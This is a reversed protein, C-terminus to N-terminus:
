CRIRISRSRRWCSTSSPAKLLPQTPAAAPQPSQAVAALPLSCFLVVMILRSLSAMM